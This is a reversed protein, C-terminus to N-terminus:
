SGVYGLLHPTTIVFSMQTMSITSGNMIHYMYKIKDLKRYSVEYEEIVQGKCFWTVVGFRGESLSSADVKLM